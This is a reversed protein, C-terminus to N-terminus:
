EAARRERAHRRRGRQAAEKHLESIRESAIERMLQIHMAQEQPSPATGPAHCTDHSCPEGM